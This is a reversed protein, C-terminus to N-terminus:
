RPNPAVGSSPRISIKDIRRGDMDVGEVRLDEFDFGEGVTPLHGLHRLVFGAMTHFDSGQRLGHLRVSDEFEDIPWRM